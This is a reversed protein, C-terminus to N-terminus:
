IISHIRSVPIRSTKLCARLILPFLKNIDWRFITIISGKGWLLTTVINHFSSPCLQLSMEQDGQGSFLKSHHEMFFDPIRIRHSHQAARHQQHHWQCRRSPEAPGAAYSCYPHSVTGREERCYKTNCFPDSQSCAPEFSRIPFWDGSKTQLTTNIHPLLHITSYSCRSTATSSTTQFLPRCCWSSHLFCRILCSVGSDSCWLRSDTDQWLVYELPLSFRGQKSHGPTCKPHHIKCKPSWASVELLM